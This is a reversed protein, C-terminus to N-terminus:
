NSRDLPSRAYARSVRVLWAIEARLDTGEDEAAYGDAAVQQGAARARLAATLQAARVAARLRDGSLGARQGRETLEEAQEASMYPRLVLWGDRIEIVRRYLEYHLEGLQGTPPDLVVQPVAASVDRWLPYLSRHARYDALWSGLRALREGWSPITLGIVILPMGIGTAVPTLFEWNLPELNLPAAVAASLRNAYYGLYVVSGLAILRLGARLWRDGIRRAYGVALRTTEVLAVAASVVYLLLYAVVVPRDANDVLFHVSRAGVGVEATLWLGVMSVLVALAALLIWRSRRAAVEPPHLWHAVVVLMAAGFLPGGFSHIGLAALNPVGTTADVWASVAAISLTFAVAKFVLAALLAVLASDRRATFLAPLKYGFAAVCLGASVPFSIDKLDTVAM